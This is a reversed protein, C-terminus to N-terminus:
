EYDEVEEFDDDNWNGFVENKINEEAYYCAISCVDYCMGYHIAEGFDTINNDSLYDWADSYYTFYSDIEERLAEEFDEESISDGDNFHDLAYEAIDLEQGSLNDYIIEKVRSYRM